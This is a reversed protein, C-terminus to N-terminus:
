CILCEPGFDVSEAWWMGQHADQGVEMDVTKEKMLVKDGVCSKALCWNSM